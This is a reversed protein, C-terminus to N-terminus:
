KSILENFKQSMIENLQKEYGSIILELQQIDMDYLENFLEGATNLNKFEDHETIGQSWLHKKIRIIDDILTLKEQEQEQISEAVVERLIARIRPNKM